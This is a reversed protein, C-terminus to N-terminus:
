DKNTIEKITNIKNHQYQIINMVEPTLNCSKCSDPCNKLMDLPNRM